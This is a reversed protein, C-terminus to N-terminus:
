WITLFSKLMFLFFFWPLSVLSKSSPPQWSFNSSYQLKNNNQNNTIISLLLLSPFLNRVTARRARWLFWLLGLGSCNWCWRQSTLSQGTSLVGTKVREKRLVCSLGWQTLGYSRQGQTGWSLLWCFINLSMSAKGTEQGERPEVPMKLVQLLWLLPVWLYGVCDSSCSRRSQKFAAM